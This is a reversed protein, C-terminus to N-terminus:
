LLMSVMAYSLYSNFLFFSTTSCSPAVSETNYHVTHLCHTVRNTWVCKMFTSTFSTILNHFVHSLSFLLIYFVKKMLYFGENTRTDTNLKTLAESFSIGREVLIQICCWFVCLYVCLVYFRFLIKWPRILIKHLLCEM